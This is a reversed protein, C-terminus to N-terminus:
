PHIVLRRGPGSLQNGIVLPIKLPNKIRVALSASPDSLIHLVTAERFRVRSNLKIDPRRDSLYFVM